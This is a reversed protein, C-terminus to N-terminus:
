WDRRCRCSVRYRRLLDESGCDQAQPSEHRHGQASLKSRPQTYLIGLGHQKRRNSSDVVCAHHHRLLWRPALQELHSPEPKLRLASSDFVIRPRSTPHGLRSSGLTRYQPQALPRSANSQRSAPRLDNDSGAGAGVSANSSEAAIAGPPRYKVAPPPSTTPSSVSAASSGQGVGNQQQHEKVQENPGQTASVTGSRVYLSKFVAEHEPRVLPINLKHRENDFLTMSNSSFLIDANHLRLMDSGLFIQIAMDNSDSGSEIVDFDITLKPLQPAPSSSRSSAPQPVAEPFFIPLRVTRAGSENPARVLGEYGLNQALRLDIFSKHSGTCVAAYLQADHTFNMNMWCRIIAPVSGLLLMGPAIAPPELPSARSDSLGYTSELNLSNARGSAASRMSHASSARGESKHSSSRENMQLSGLGGSSSRSLFDVSPRSSHTFHNQNATEDFRVSNARSAAGLGRRPEDEADLNTLSNMLSNAEDDFNRFQDSPPQNLPALSTLSAEFLRGATGEDDAWLAMERVKRWGNKCRGRGGDSGVSCCTCSMGQNPTGGAGGSLVSPFPSQNGWVSKVRADEDQRRELRAIRESHDTQVQQVRAVDNQLRWTESNGYPTFSQSQPDM